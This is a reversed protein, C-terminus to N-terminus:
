RELLAECWEELHDELMWRGRVWARLEDGERWTAPLDYIRARIAEIWARPNNEVGGRDTTPIDVRRCDSSRLTNPQLRASEKM